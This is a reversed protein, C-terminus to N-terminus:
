ALSVAESLAPDSFGPRGTEMRGALRRLFTPDSHDTVVLDYWHHSSGIVWLDDVAAGPELRRRRVVPALYANPRVTLTCAAAGVNRLSIVIADAQPEYRAVIEPRAATAPILPGRFSRLFGNPGLVTLDYAQDGLAIAAPQDVVTKGAEVAYVWPGLAANRGHVSFHAGAAGTNEFRLTLAGGEPQAHVQLAYPLARSPRLGPEQAPLPAPRGPPQPAALKCAAAVRTSVDRTDPLSPPPAAQAFDFVTTLDGTMARRWPTINPEAVGFRAELFRLVSTHDFLQSNVWGGRTWPSVVIMPVRPGLGVPTAGYAEGATSVTSVGMAPTLAPIPPPVHDFFGDNEDYNLIFVTKAFVAPNAALAEILAATFAEGHSPSADPHECAGTPAVIWSVQALADAGVDRAFAAVLAEGRSQAANDPTSGEVWTRGRQHLPQDPTLGRYAAFFALANDGFNDYEQYLKWSVGAAQLREAYTTWGYGPFSKADRAADATWNGDDDNTVAQLGGQGVALGSTGSFLFLRNPNTPGFISCHYADCITFADALAYYFPIDQRTFYGMTLPGKVPLWADHHRWLSQQAKWSHDLSAMCEASTSDSNLRFPTAVDEAGVAVPQHFVSRGSPLTLPRPDGFGRVGRLCGFYHDFARNEQMLIVVHEVDRLTGTGAPAPAAVARQLRPSFLSAAGLGAGAAQLFRRRSAETM